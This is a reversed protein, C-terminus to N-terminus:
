LTDYLLKEFPLTSITFHVGRRHVLNMNARFPAVLTASSSFVHADSVVLLASQSILSVSPSVLPASPGLVFYESPYSCNEEPTVSPYFNLIFAGILYFM